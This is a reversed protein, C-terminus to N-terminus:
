VFQTFDYDSYAGLLEFELGALLGRLQEGSLEMVGHKARPFKFRRKELRKYYLVWGNKDWFLLKVKNCAQNHFIYLEREARAKFKEGILVNLGDIAKRMDVAELACYIKFDVPLTLM